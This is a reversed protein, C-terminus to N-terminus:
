EEPEEPEFRDIRVPGDWLEVVCEDILQKARKRAEQETAVKLDISLELYGDAGFIYTRYEPM